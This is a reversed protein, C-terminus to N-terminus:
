RRKKRGTKKRKTAVFRGNARRKPLIRWYGESM